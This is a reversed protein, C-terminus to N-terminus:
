ALEVLVQRRRIQLKVALRRKALGDALDEQLGGTLTRSADDVLVPERSGAPSEPELLDVEGDLKRVAFRVRDNWQVMGLVDGSAERVGFEGDQRADAV